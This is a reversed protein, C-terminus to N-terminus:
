QCPWCTQSAKKPTRCHITIPCSIRSHNQHVSSLNQAL